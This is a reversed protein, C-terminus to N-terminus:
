DEACSQCRSERGDHGSIALPWVLGMRYTNRCGRIIRGTVVSWYSDSGILMDVELSNALDSQEALDLDTFHGYRDPSISLPQMTLPDCIHPVAFLDIELDSETRTQVGLTVIDYPKAPARKSGFVAISLRQTTTAEIGLDKQMRETLYSRQSGSDLVVRIKRRYMHHVPNCVEIVASQLLVTRSAGLYLSTNLTGPKFEPASPNIISSTSESEVAPPAKPPDKVGPQKQSCISTHHRGNCEHCRHSTMCNRSLHGKRLCSFCRGGRRLVQKRADVGSVENCNSPLHDKGCYCCGTSFGKTESVLTTALAPQKAERKPRTVPHVTVRERAVVEEEVVRLVQELNWDDDSVNRSVILQLEAPLRAVLVPCLLGGFSDTTVDLAELSRIHSSVQDFLQRLGKVDACSSVSSIKLMADTHKNVIKQKSGFRKKLTLIAQDYNAATLSMGSIAQRAVGELASTLYNFKEVPTLQRNKHVAAEFSEWFPMWQTLEGGFSKLKLKPLKVAAPPDVLTPTVVAPLPTAGRTGAGVKAEIRLLCEQM